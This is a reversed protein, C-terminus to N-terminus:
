AAARAEHFARASREVDVRLVIWAVGHRTRQLWALAEYLDALQVAAEDVPKRKAIVRQREAARVLEAELEFSYAGFLDTKEDWTPCPPQAPDMIWRWQDVICRALRLGREADAATIKKAEIAAPYGEERIRLLMQAARACLHRHQPATYVPLSM